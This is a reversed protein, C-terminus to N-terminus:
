ESGLKNIGVMRLLYGLFPFFGVMDLWPNMWSTMPCWRIMSDEKMVLDMHYWDRHHFIHHEQSIFLGSWQLAKITPSLDNKNMHACRHVLNGFSAFFFTLWVIPHAGILLAAASLPWGVIASIRLNEWLTFRAIEAPDFHHKDNDHAIEAVIPIKSKSGLYHDQWWHIIGTLIDALFWSIIISLVWAM